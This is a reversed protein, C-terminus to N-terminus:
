KQLVLNKLREKKLRNYPLMRAIAAYLVKRSDAAFRRSLPIIKLHGITGTHRYYKKQDFKKGTFVLKDTNTVLIRVSPMKHARWDPRDKGQLRHAIESAIRGVKKNAADIQITEM